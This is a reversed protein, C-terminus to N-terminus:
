KIDRTRMNLKTFIDTIYKLSKTLKTTDTKINSMGTNDNSNIMKSLINSITKINQSLTNMINQFSEIDVPRNESIQKKINNLSDITNREINYENQLKLIFDILEIFEKIYKDKFRILINKEIKAIYEADNSKWGEGLSDINIGDLSYVIKLAHGTDFDFGQRFDYKLKGHSAEQFLEEGVFSESIPKGKNYDDLLKRKKNIGDEGSEEEDIRSLRDRLENFRAKQKVDKKSPHKYDISQGVFYTDILDNLKVGRKTKFSEAATRRGSANDYTTSGEKMTDNNFWHTAKFSKHKDIEGVTIKHVYKNIFADGKSNYYKKFNDFGHIRLSQSPVAPAYLGIVRATNLRENTVRDIIALVKQNSSLHDLNGKKTINAKVYALVEAERKKSVGQIEIVLPFDNTDQNEIINSIIQRKDKDRKFRSIFKIILDGITKLLDVFRKLLNKPNLIEKIKNNAEAEQYVHNEQVFTDSMESLMRSKDYADYLSILVDFQSEMVCKDIKDLSELIEYNLEYQKDTM